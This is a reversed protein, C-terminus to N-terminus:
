EKSEVVHFPLVDKSEQCFLMFRKAHSTPLALHITSDGSKRDRPVQVILNPIVGFFAAMASAQQSSGMSVELWRRDWSNIFTGDGKVADLAVPAWVDYTNKYGLHRAAEFWDKTKCIDEPHELGTRVACHIEQAMDAVADFDYPVASLPLSMRQRFDFSANGFYDKPFREARGRLNCAVHLTHDASKQDSATHRQAVLLASCLVEFRSVWKGAPLKATVDEKLQKLRSADIRLELVQQRSICWLVRPLLHLYFTWKSLPNIACGVDSLVRNQLENLDKAPVYPSTVRLGFARPRKLTETLGETTEHTCFHSWTQLIDCIASGDCLGHSIGISLFSVDAFSTLRVRMLPDTIGPEGQFGAVPADLGAQKWAERPSSDEPFSAADDDRKIYELAVGQNGKELVLEYLKSSNTDVRAGLAPIHKLTRELGTKLISPELASDFRLSFGLWHSARSLWEDVESLTERLTDEFPPDATVLWKTETTDSNTVTAAM